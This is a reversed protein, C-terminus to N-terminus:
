SARRFQDARQPLARAFTLILVSSVGMSGLTRAAEIATAGTTLVDDVLIVKKDRLSPSFGPAPSFAERVNASRQDPPLGVQRPAERPRCLAQHLPLQVRDALAQALRQAPNFGRDRLRGPTTPIPVILDASWSPPLAGAMRAGLIQSIGRWGEYKLAHILRDAPPVMATASRAFVGVPWEECEM